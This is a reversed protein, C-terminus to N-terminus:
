KTLTRDNVAPIDIYPSKGKSGPVRAIYLMLPQQIELVANDRPNLPPNDALSLVSSLSSAEVAPAM